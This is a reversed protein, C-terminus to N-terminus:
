VGISRTTPSDFSARSTSANACRNCVWSCRVAWIAAAISLTNCGRPTATSISASCVQMDTRPMALGPELVTVVRKVPMNRSLGSSCFRKRLITRPRLAQDDSAELKARVKLTPSLHRCLRAIDVVLVLMFLPQGELWAEIRSAKHGTDRGIRLAAVNQHDGVHVVLRQALGNLGAVGPVVAARAPLQPALALGGAVALADDLHPHIAILVGHPNANRLRAAASAVGATARTEVAGHFTPLAGDPEFKDIGRPREIRRLDVLLGEGDPARRRNGGM